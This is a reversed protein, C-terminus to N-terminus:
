DQNITEKLYADIFGDINGDMVKSTDGEEYNTRHDKVMQYPHFVYSRIQSGWAIESKEGRIEDLEQANKEELLRALKAQLTKMATERNQLQSRQSQSSVVIGTPIHTIRVASSTKNIHQGGAGSARFVDIRLDDDNIEIETNQDIEPMVEVSAFSTHRRKNSDFPSIRVLRHIGHESKLLGYANNGKIEFTASKIGAEDGAQYDFLNFTFDHSDAWRQYMRLLMSAWDQSETGGAGPHIDLIASAKDHPGNLLMHREYDEMEEQFALVQDEFDQYLEQDAEEETLLDDYAQLDEYTSLLKHYTDYVAKVQNNENIVEQAQSPDDWFDPALMRDQYEALQAELEELDLSRGFSALQEQNEALLHRLESIEM